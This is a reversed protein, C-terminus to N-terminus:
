KIYFSCIAVLWCETLRDTFRLKIFLTYMTELFYRHLNAALLYIRLKTTAIKTFASHATSHNRVFHITTATTIPQRSCTQLCSVSSSTGSLILVLQLCWRQDAHKRSCSRFLDPLSKSLYSVRILRNSATAGATILATLSWLLQSPHLSYTIMTITITTTLLHDYYKYHTCHTIM